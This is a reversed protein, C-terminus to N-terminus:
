GGSGHGAELHSLAWYHALARLNPVGAKHVIQVYITRELSWCLM